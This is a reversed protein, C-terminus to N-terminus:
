VLLIFHLIISERIIGFSDLQILHFLYRVCLMTVQLYHMHKKTVALPRQTVHSLSYGELDVIIVIGTLFMQEEDLGMVDSVMFNVKEVDEPKHLYPDFCGPRMIIVKRGMHDYDLLPLMSGVKLLAQVEPRYPDCGSFFEPLASRMTLMLDLKRKTKEISYKCGRAFALINRDEMECHCLHPQKQLWERITRITHKRRSDDEGLADTVRKIAPADLKSICDVSMKILAFSILKFSGM